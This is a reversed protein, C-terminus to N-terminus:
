PSPRSGVGEFASCVTRFDLPGVAELTPPGGADAADEAGAITAAVTCGDGSGLTPLATVGGGLLNTHDAADNSRSVETVTCQCVHVHTLRIREDFRLVKVPLHSCSGDWMPARM